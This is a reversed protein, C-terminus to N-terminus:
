SPDFAEFTATAAVAYALHPVIDAVWDVRSWDRPDTVGFLTMPGNGALMAIVWATALTAAPGRPHGRSRLVGLVLGASVGAATGLLSGLGSSTARRKEEDEPLPLRTLQAAREATQEPTSSAPRARLAMDAFTAANLATTGTAGAIAGRVLHTGLSHM